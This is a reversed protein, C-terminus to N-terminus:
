QLAALVEDTTRVRGMRPFVKKMFFENGDPQQANIADSVFILEFDRSHAGYATAAVGIETSGGTLIITDVGRSRLSLEAATQHFTDWRQRWFVYDDPGPTLEDIVAVEPTGRFHPSIPLRMGQEPLPMLRMDTDTIHAYWDSGDPRYAAASYVVAIKLKRAADRLRVWNGVSAAVTTSRNEPKLSPGNVFYNCTDFFLLCTRQPDLRETAM